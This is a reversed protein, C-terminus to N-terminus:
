RIVLVEKVREVLDDVSFPKSIYADAGCERAQQIVARDRTGSIIIVPIAPLNIRVARMADMGNMKPMQIDMIILDYSNIMTKKFAEAGDGATDIGYGELELFEAILRRISLNDDVILIQKEASGM